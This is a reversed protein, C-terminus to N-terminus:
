ATLRIVCVSEAPLEIHSGTLTAGDTSSLVVDSGPRSLPVRRPEDHLNCAVALSDRRVVIWREDEDYTVTTAGTVLDPESRRLAILARHWDLLAAHPQKGLEAWDLKSAQFTQPDQPDPVHEPQWGFEKFENRRGHRVAEALDPDEHDTFYLWPTSAGWEEGMFLM